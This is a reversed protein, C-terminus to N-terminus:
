HSVRPRTSRVPGVTRPRVARSASGTTPRSRVACTACAIIAVAGVVVSATLSEGVLAVSWLVSLVPQVLQIQSVTTMPGIALGRYWAFFGLFMSVASLYAFAAWAAGGATPTSRTTLIATTVATAPLAVVLAWSITQWAGLERALLGGEAYGVAGAVVAALLLLDGIRPPGLAGHGLTSFVGVAIAGALAFVWFRAPPREGTRLVAAVATAAPLLGIVVAAHAATTSTLALSTLVPFGVVVGGAVLALRLWQRGRPLRPRVVALLTVALLGAVVARGVGVLVPDLDAVAVRTLPVTFSFAAVGIAGFALGSADPLPTSRPAIASDDYKM